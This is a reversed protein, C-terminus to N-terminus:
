FRSVLTLRAARPEGPQFVAQAPQARDTPTADVAYREDCLNFLLAQLELRDSFRWGLTAELLTYGPVRLTNANDVWRGEPVLRLRLSAFAGTDPAYALEADLRQPVAGAIRNDRFSPDGRFRASERAYALRLRWSTAPRWSLAAEVGQTRTKRANAADVRAFNEDVSVLIEGSMDYRYAALRWDLGGTRGSAGVEIDDSKQSKLPNPRVITPGSNFTGGRVTILDELIPAEARRAVLAFVDFHDGHAVLGFRASWDTHRSSFSVDPAPVEAPLSAPPPGGLRLTPRTAFPYDDEVDIRARGLSASGLVDLWDTLPAVIEASAVTTLTKYDLRAIPAGFSGRDNHRVDVTGESVIAFAALDTAVRGHGAPERRWNARASLTTEDILRGGAAIPSLARDDLHSVSAGGFLTDSGTSREATALTRFVRTERYPQDRLINPGPGTLHPDENSRKVGPGPYLQTPDDRLMELTLPGGTRQLARTFSTQAGLSWAGTAARWAFQGHDRESGRDNDFRLTSIAAGIDAGTLRVAHRGEAELFGLSGAGLAIRSGSELRASNLLVAGGLTQAGYRTGGSAPAVEASRYLAPDLPGLIFSNDGRNIPVGDLFFALGRAAPRRQRGSGRISLSLQDLGAFRPPATVAPEFSVADAISDASLEAVRDDSIVSHQGPIASLRIATGTVVVEEVEDTAEDATSQAYGATPLGTASAILFVALVSRLLVPSGFTTPDARRRHLRSTLSLSSGAM